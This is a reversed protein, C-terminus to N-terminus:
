IEGKKRKSVFDAIERVTNLPYAILDSETIETAFQTRVFTTLEVAGFSDIYGYDFLHVDDTFDPDDDPVKFRHRIFSRLETMIEDTEM